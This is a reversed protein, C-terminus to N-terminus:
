KNNIYNILDEINKFTNNEQYIEQISNIVTLDIKEKSLLYILEIGNEKCLNYKKIDRMTQKEFENKGGFIELPKFHQVGQCEIALNLDKIYFDFSSKDLWKFYKKNCQPIYEIENKILLSEVEEELHSKFCNGCGKGSLHNGPTQWFENGCKNCIICVPINANIYQVKSYNYKDGHILRSKEVFEELTLKRNKACKSCGKGNLHNFPTIWFEGHEKCIICVKTGINNYNVKSYDYRDGHIEIARKIFEETTLRYNKVCKQCNCGQLHKSAIQWFEGHVPCIICVKKNMGNYKTKSYDYKDGHILKAREIFEKTTLKINGACKGCSNYRLLSSPVIWFEGHIPCILCIKTKMNVYHIKSLDYKEDYLIKIRRILENQTMKEKKYSAKYPYGNFLHEFLNQKIFKAEPKYYFTIKNHKLDSLEENYEFKNFLNARKACEIFKEFKM